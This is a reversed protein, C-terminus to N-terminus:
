SHFRGFKERKAVNGLTIKRYLAATKEVLSFLNGCLPFSNEDRSFFSKKQKFDFIGFCYFAFVKFLNKQQVVIPWVEVGANFVFEFALAELKYRRQVSFVSKAENRKHSAIGLRFNDTIVVM